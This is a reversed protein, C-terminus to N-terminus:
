QAQRPVGQAAKALARRVGMEAHHGHTRPDGGHFEQNVTVRAGAHHHTETHNHQGAAPAKPALPVAPKAHQFAKVAQMVAGISTADVGFLPGLVPIAQLAASITTSFRGIVNIISELAHVWLKAEDVLFDKGAAKDGMMLAFLDTLANQADKISPVLKELWTVGDGIWKWVGALQSKGGTLYTYLDQVVLLMLLVAAAGVIWLSNAALFKLSARTAEILGKAVQEKLLTGLMKLAFVTGVPVLLLMIARLAMMAWKNSLVQQAMDALPDLVRRAMEAFASIADMVADLAPTLAIMLTVAVAELTGTMRQWAPKLGQNMIAYQRALYGNSNHIEKSVEGFNQAMTLVQAGTVNELGFLAKFIAARQANGMKKTKAALQELIKDMPLLNGAKDKTTLGLLDVVTSTQGKKLLGELGTGVLSRKTARHPAAVALMMARLSTGAQTGRIGAKGLLAALTGVDAFSQGLAHATPAVYKLTDALEPIQIGGTEHVRGIIDGVHNADDAKLGYGQIVASILDTSTKADTKGARAMKIATPAIKAIAASDFGKGALEVMAESIEVPSRGLKYSWALVKKKLKDVHASSELTASQVKQMNQQFEASQEVGGMAAEFGVFGLAMGAMGRIWHKGLHGMPGGHGGEGEPEGGGGSPGGALFESFSAKAARARAGIAAIAEQLRNAKRTDQDLSTGMQEFSAMAAEATEKAGTGLAMIQQAIAEFAPSAVEAAERAATGIEQVAGVVPELGTAMQKAGSALAEAAPKVAQGLSDVAKAAEKATAKAANVAEDFKEVKATDGQFLLKTVLERVIM